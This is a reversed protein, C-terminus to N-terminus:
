MFTFQITVIPRTGSIFYRTDQIKYLYTFNIDNYSYVVHIYSLFNIVDRYPQKGISFVFNIVYDDNDCHM